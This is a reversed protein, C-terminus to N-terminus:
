GDDPEELQTSAIWQEMMAPQASAGSTAGSAGTVHRGGRRRTVILCLVRGYITFGEYRTRLLMKKYDDGDDDDGGDHQVADVVPGVVAEEEEQEEEDVVVVVAGAAGDDDDGDEREERRATEGAKRKAGSSSSAPPLYKHVRLLAHRTSPETLFVSVEFDDHVVVDKIAKAATTTKTKRKGKGRDHEERLKPLVLPRVSAFVHPLQHALWSSSSNSSNSSSSEEGGLGPSSAASYIRCEIASSASLRLYRRLPAM